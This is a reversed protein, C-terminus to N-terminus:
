GGLGGSNESRRKVRCICNVLFLLPLSHTAVTAIYQWWTFNPPLYSRIWSYLCINYWFSTIDMIFHKFHDDITKKQLNFFILFIVHFPQLIRVKKAKNKNRDVPSWFQSVAWFLLTWFQHSNIIVQLLISPM